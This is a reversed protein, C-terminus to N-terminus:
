EHVEVSKKQWTWAVVSTSSSRPALGLWAVSSVRLLFCSSCESGSYFRDFRKALGTVGTEGLSSLSLSGFSSCVSEFRSSVQVLAEEVL